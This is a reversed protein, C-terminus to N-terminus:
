FRFFPAVIVIIVIVNVNKIFYDFGWIVIVVMFKLGLMWIRGDIM